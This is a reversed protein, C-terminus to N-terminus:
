RYVRSQSNSYVENKDSFNNLLVYRVITGSINVDYTGTKANSYDLYVYGRPSGYILQRPKTHDDSAYYVFRIQAYLNINIPDVRDQNDALWQAGKLEGSHLYYDDYYRGENNLQLVPQYSGVLQAVFSVLVLFLICVFLGTFKKFIKTIVIAIPICAFVLIHQFMRLIGYDVSVEPLISQLALLVLGALSLAAILVNASDRRKKLRLILLLTGILVALQIFIATGQKLFANFTEPSVGLKDINAGLKTPPLNKTGTYQVAGDKGGNKNVYNNLLESQDIRGRSFISYSVDSSQAGDDKVLSVVTNKLTRTLGQGTATFQANWLFAMLLVCLLIRYNLMPYSKKNLSASGSKSFIVYLDILFRCAFLLALTAYLTSYHSLVVGSLFLITLFSQQLKSLGREFNALLVGAFFLFAIAQRNLSTYDNLFTPFSIFLVVSLLAIKKGELISAIRYIPVVILASFFPFILKFINENSFHTIASFFTPLITVSLCANYTDRVANINWFGAALTKSFFYFERQVDHGTVLLGRMSMSLLLASAIIYLLILTNNTNRMKFYLLAIIAGCLGLMLMSLVNSAGNNIKIAGFISFSIVLVSLIAVVFGQKNFYKQPLANFSPLNDKASYLIVCMLCNLAIFIPGTALPRDLGIIRAADLTLGLLIMSMLSILIAFYCISWRSPLSVRFSRLVLLGPMFAFFPLAILAAVVGHICYALDAILLLAINEPLPKGIVNLLTSNIKM